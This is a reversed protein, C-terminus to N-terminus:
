QVTLVVANPAYFGKTGCNSQASEFGGAVATITFAYTNGLALGTNVVDTLATIGTAVKAVTACTLGQYLNYTIPVTSPITTGNTYTTPATWSLTATPTTQAFAAGSAFLALFLLVLKNM